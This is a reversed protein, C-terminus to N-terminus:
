ALNQFLWLVEIGLKLSKAIKMGQLFPSLKYIKENNWGHFHM